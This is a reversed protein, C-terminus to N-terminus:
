VVVTFVSSYLTVGSVKKNIVHIMFTSNRSRLSKGESVLIFLLSTLISMVECLAKLNLDNRRIAGLWRFSINNAGSGQYTPMLTLSYLGM